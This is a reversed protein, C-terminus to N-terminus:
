KLQAMKEKAMNAAKGNPYQNLYNQYSEATNNYRAKQWAAIEIADEAKQKFDGNPYLKIYNRLATDSFQSAAINYAEIFFLKEKLAKVENLFIGKPYNSLYIDCLIIEETEIVKKYLKKDAPILTVEMKNQNESILLSAYMKKFKFELHTDQASVEITFEGHQNSTTREKSQNSLVAAGAIAGDIGNVKGKITRTQANTILTFSIILIALIIKKITKM